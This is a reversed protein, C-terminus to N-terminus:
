IPLRHKNDMDLLHQPFFMWEIKLFWSIHMYFQEVSGCVLCAASTISNGIFCHASSYVVCLILFILLLSTCDHFKREAAAPGALKNTVASEASPFTWISRASHAHRPWSRRQTAAGAGEPLPPASRKTPAVRVLLTLVDRCNRENPASAQYRKM